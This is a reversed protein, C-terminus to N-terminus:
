CRLVHAASARACAAGAAGEHQVRAGWTILQIIVTKM